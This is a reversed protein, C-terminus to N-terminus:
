STPTTSFDLIAETGKGEESHLRIGWGYRDCIKKVLALGIGAGQSHRGKYLRQFVRDLDAKPIGLGTDRIRLRDAELSLLVQGQETYTFSNRVLNALVIALLNADTVLAPRAQVDLRVEVDKGQLLHQHKDLTDRLLDAVEVPDRRGDDRERAMALLATVLDAMDAASREIRLLRQQEKEPRTEDTLLVEAAGRIVALPTRLEHSVDATFAREREIFAALRDLSQEFSRALEGVEDPPFDAALDGHPTTPGIHRLRRALEKVPEIVREALWFAIAGSLLMMLAVFAGLFAGLRAQRERFLTENHLLYYRRGQHDAIALRYPVGELQLSHRGPSLGALEAPLDPDHSAAPAVYGLLTATAPPLSAPNRLRRSQYDQMEASLTEDILRQGADRVGIYLGVAIILSVGGGVAVFALAVRSRLSHSFRM